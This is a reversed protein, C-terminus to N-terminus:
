GALYRLRRRVYAVDDDDPENRAEAIDKKWATVVPLVRREAISRSETELSQVFRPKGFRKRLPKPLELIAHWRRRRQQLYSPMFTALLRELWM